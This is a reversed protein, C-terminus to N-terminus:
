VSAARATILHDGERLAYLKQKTAEIWRIEEREADHQADDKDGFWLQHNLQALRVDLLTELYRLDYLDIPEVPSPNM